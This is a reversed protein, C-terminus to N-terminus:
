KVGLTRAFDQAMSYLYKHANQIADELSDAISLVDFIDTIGMSKLKDIDDGVCGVFCYVSIGNKNARKAVGSIAKGFLSQCDIKGEGTIVAYADTLASDFDTIDLVTDIGSQIRANFFALLPASLGGGAGCGEIEAVNRRSMATLLQAYHTMGREMDDLEEPAAGKQPAYVYTAGNEGLLPNKVDTAIIFECDFVEKKVDSLDIRSINYLTNGTPIFEMNDVDTFRAGLAALMGCGGDNTASGGVTLMIRRYGNSIADTIIEGVGYTTTNGANRDSEPVLTLGAAAAMEIIAVDGINGYRATVPKFMPGTVSLRIQREPPILADLTGEGGDAIPKCIVSASPIIEEIGRKIAACADQASISGKFSDPAIVFKM